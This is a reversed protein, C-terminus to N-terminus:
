KLRYISVLYSPYKLLHFSIQFRKGISLGICLYFFLYIFLYIFTFFLAKVEAMLAIRYTSM